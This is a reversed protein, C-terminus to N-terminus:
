PCALSEWVENFVVGYDRAAYGSINASLYVLVDDFDDGLKIVVGTRYATEDGVTWHAHFTAMYEAEFARAFQLGAVRFETRDTSSIYNKM